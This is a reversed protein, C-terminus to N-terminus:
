LCAKLVRLANAYCIKEVETETFHNLLERSLLDMGCFDRIELQCDIGDFDSGISVHDIGIKGALYRIHSVIDEVTAFDSNQRLFKSYFNIGVTGDTQAIRKLEDDSLNRSYDCLTKVCSHSAVVPKTTTRVVDKLGGESLHSVDVIMGLRNMEKVVDFGFEKLGKQHMAADASHPFGLCNEYNWTLTILRVGRDYLYQLRSLDNDLLGGDEITLLSSMKHNMRNEKIDEFSRVPIILDPNASMEQQYFSYVADFFDIEEINKDATEERPIFVAFFQVLSNGSHLRELDVHGPNKRLREQKLYCEVITDCHMDIYEM